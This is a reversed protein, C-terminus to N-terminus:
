PACAAPHPAVAARRLTGLWRAGRALLGPLVALGAAGFMAGLVPAAAHGAAILTRGVLSYGAYCLGALAALLIGVGDVPAGHGTLGPALVLAGCGLVAAATAAAWRVGRRAQGTAWALLGAFVAARGVGMGSGG